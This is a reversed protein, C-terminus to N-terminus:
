WASRFIKMSIWNHKIRPQLQVRCSPLDGPIPNLVEPKICYQIEITCYIWLNTRTKINEITCRFNLFITNWITSWSQTNYSLKHLDGVEVSMHSSWWLVQLKIYNMKQLHNSCFFRINSLKSQPKGQILHNISYWQKSSRDTKFAKAWYSILSQMCRM